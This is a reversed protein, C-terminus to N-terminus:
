CLVINKDCKSALKKDHTVIVIAKGMNRLEKFLKFIEESNAEDLNGTPEDAFIYKCNQLLVRAFAVRQQEGGSLEFIKKNEIGILGVKKLADAISANKDINKKYGLPIMLNAKVTENEILAYNQFINGLVTRRLLLKEKKSFNSKEDIIIEGSDYDELLSIINLLTTKGSGSEGVISIISGELINLSFKDLIKINNYSKEINKIEIM